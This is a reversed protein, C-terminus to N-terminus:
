VFRLTAGINVTPACAQRHVPLFPVNSPVSEFFKKTTTTEFCSATVVATVAVVDEM